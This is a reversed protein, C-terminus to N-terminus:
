AHSETACLVNMLLKNMPALLDGGGGKEEEEEKDAM